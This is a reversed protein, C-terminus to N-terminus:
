SSQWSKKEGGTQQSIPKVYSWHALPLKAHRRYGRTNIVKCINNCVEGKINLKQVLSVMNDMWTNKDTDSVRQDPSHLVKNRTDIIKSVLPEHIPDFEKCYKLLSLLAPSDLEQPLNVKNSQGKTMYIKAIEWPETSWKTIDANCWNITKCQPENHRNLIESLWVNCIRNNCKIYWDLKPKKHQHIKKWSCDSCEYQTVLKSTVSHKVNDHLRKVGDQTYDHLGEKLVVFSSACRLWNVYEKDAFRLLVSKENQM